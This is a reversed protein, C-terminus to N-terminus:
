FIEKCLNEIELYTKKDNMETVGLGSQTSIKYKEREYIISDCLKIYDCELEKIFNKLSDIKKKLFPNPNSRNIVIYAKLKPNAEKATKVINIMKELVSVDYQSPITPIIVIDSLVIAIRM